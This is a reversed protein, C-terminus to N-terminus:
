FCVDIDKDGIDNICDSDSSLPSIRSGDPDEDEQDTDSDSKGVNIIFNEPIGDLVNTRLTSKRSNKLM